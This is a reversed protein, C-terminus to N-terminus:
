SDSPRPTKGVGQPSPAAAVAEPPFAFDACLVFGSGGTSCNPFQSALSREIPRIVREAQRLFESLSVRMEKSELTVHDVKASMAMGVPNLLRHSGTQMRGANAVCSRVLTGEPNVVALWSLVGWVPWGKETM